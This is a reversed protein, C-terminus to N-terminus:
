VIKRPRPIQGMTKPHLLRYFFYVVFVSFLYYGIDFFQPFRFVPKIKQSDTLNKCIFGHFRISGRNVMPQFEKIQQNSHCNKAPASEVMATINPSPRSRYNEYVYSIMKRPRSLSINTLSTDFIIPYGSKKSFFLLRFSKKSFFFLPAFVKKRLFNLPRLSKKSCYKFIWSKM